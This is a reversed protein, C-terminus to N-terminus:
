KTELYFMRRRTENKEIFRDLLFDMKISRTIEKHTNMLSVANLREQSMTSRLFTKLRRLSSFSREATCTSVPQVLIIKIFRVIESVISRLGIQEKARIFDLASQFDVLQVKKRMAEDIFLDRHLQLRQYNTFDDKCFNKIYNISCETNNSGIVFEEVRTLHRTTETSEFKDTLSVLVADLSIFYLNKYMEKPDNPQYYTDRFGVEIKAPVKRKRPLAPEDLDMIKASETAADFLTKFRSETRLSRLIQKLTQIISEAKSFNLQSGQLQISSDELITFIIRLFELKFFTDFVQFSSLFAMAEVRCKTFDPNTTLDELWVLLSRYNSTIYILSPKRMIWRTPCFPRFSTGNQHGDESENQDKLSSFWALRKPSGRTFAIFKQVLSMINEIDPINKIEDQIVLNLNHARCHVYLARSEQQLVLKQLGAIESSMAAAGDYCQGRCNELRLNSRLLVDKIILFLDKSKTTATEYFGCFDENIQFEDDVTRFSISVQEKGTIDSSEDMMFGFFDRKKITNSLERQIVLSIDLVIENTVDPSIWKYKEPRNMWKKLVPVDMSRLELLQFLNSSEKTKGRIALGQCGLFILSSFIHDLAKRADKMDQLHQTSHKSSVTSDSTSTLIMENAARHFHSAEHRRFKEHAKKWNNFGNIVFGLASKKERSETPLPLKM